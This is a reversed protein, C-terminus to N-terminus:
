KDIITIVRVPCADVADQNCEVAEVKLEYHGNEKKKGGIPAAKGDQSWEWHKPCLAICTGCSICNEHDQIIKKM